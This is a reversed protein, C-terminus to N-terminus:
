AETMEIRSVENNEKQKERDSNEKEIKKYKEQEKIAKDIIKGM